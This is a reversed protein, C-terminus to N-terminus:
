NIWGVAAAVLVGFLPPVKRLLLVAGFCALAITVPTRAAHAVLTGSSISLLAVVALALSQLVARFRRQHILRSRLRRLPLVLLPPLAVALAAALAGWGGAVFYGVAVLYLGNPGPSINGVAIAHLILSDPAIGAATLQSRLVPLSGLGGFGLLSALLVALFVHEPTM